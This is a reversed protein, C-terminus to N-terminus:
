TIVMLRTDNEGSYDRKFEKSVDPSMMDGCPPLESSWLLRWNHNTCSEDYRNWSQYFAHLCKNAEQKNNRM